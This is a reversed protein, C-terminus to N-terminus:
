SLLGEARMWAISDSLLTRVPTFRYGLEAQARGSDCQIHRSIMAAGESTIDPAKGSFRSFFNSVRGALMLQWAPSAASPVPRDLLDGILAILELFPIDEGGLLYNAGREGREFAKIHAAAVERVDAFAGGGPPVGPLKQDQVLRIMRSWNHRDGPGLIHAPNCIVADLGEDAVAAKVHEEARRKTRLYNIWEDGSGTWPTTEDVTHDQFGWVVFSSTHVLRRAGRTKAARLVNQTGEVNIREQLARERSWISTSAAVHFVADVQEPMAAHVSGSDVVDGQRVDLELGQLDQLSSTPRVLIIVRWGSEALQRALQAGVFGTAGTVFATQTM